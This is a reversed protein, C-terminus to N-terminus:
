LSIETKETQRVARAAAKRSQRDLHWLRILGAVVLGAIFVEVRPLALMALATLGLAGLSLLYAMGVSRHDGDILLLAISGQQLGAPLLALFTGATLLQLEILGVEPKLLAYALSALASLPYVVFCIALSRLGMRRAAALRGAPDKAQTLVPYSRQYAVNLAANSAGQTARAVRFM